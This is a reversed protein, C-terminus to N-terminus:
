LVVTSLCLIALCSQATFLERHAILTLIARSNSM